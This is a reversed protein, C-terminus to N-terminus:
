GDWKVAERQEDTPRATWCRWKMGYSAKWEDLYRSVSHYGRWHVAFSDAVPFDFYLPAIDELYDEQASLDDVFVPPLSYHEIVEELTMLRPDQERLLALADDIYEMIGRYDDRAINLEDVYAKFDRAWEEVKERDPM